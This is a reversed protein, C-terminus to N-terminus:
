PAATPTALQYIWMEHQPLQAILQMGAPAPELAARLVAYRVGRALLVPDLPSVDLSYVVVSLTQFSRDQERLALNMFSYRNYVQDFRGSPDMARCFPLDPVIQLGNLVDVGQAKLFQATSVNGYAIWKGAPDRSRIERVAAAPTADTLPGLGTSVPNVGGNNVLLSAIFITCFVLRRAFCYTAIFLANLGILLTTRSRTL